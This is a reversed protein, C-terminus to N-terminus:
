AGYICAEHIFWELFKINRAEVEGDKEIHDM